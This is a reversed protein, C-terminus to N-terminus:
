EFDYVVAESREVKGYRVPLLIALQRQSARVWKNYIGDSGIRSFNLEHVGIAQEEFPYAQEELLIDYQELEDESLGKPRQSELLAAAFKNYIQGIEYTAETSAEAVGYSSAKEYAALIKEMARKKVILSKKLPITLQIRDFNNRLSESLKLSARSAVGRSYDSFDASNGGALSLADSYALEINKMLKLHASADSMELYMDAVRQRAQMAQDLPQPFQSQYRLYVSIAKEQQKLKEYLEASIWLAQKQLQSNSADRSLHDYEIAAKENYEAKLYAYALKRSVENRLGLQPFKERLYELKLIANVWDKRALLIAAVDYEATATIPADPFVDRIRIFHAIAGDEDGNKRAMEGQKYISAAMRQQLALYPEDKVSSLALAEQYAHEAREYKENEFFINAKITWASKRMDDSVFSTRQVLRTAMRDARQQQGTAFLDEVLSALVAGSQKHWPFKSTFNIASEIAQSRWAPYKKYALIAAYGAEGSIDRPPYDYAVKEYEKIAQAYQENEYLMDALQYRVEQSRIDDPFYNLYRQYWKTAEVYSGQSSNRQLAAHYFHAMDLVVRKLMLTVDTLEQQNHSLWFASEFGFRLVFEEKAARALDYFRLQEYTEFVRQQFYPAKAHQPMFTVFEHYTRAADAFRKKSVYRQAVAEFIRWSYRRQGIRELSIAVQELKESYSFILSIARLSDDIMKLERRSQHDDLAGQEFGKGAVFKRDLFKLFENLGAERQGSLFLSWGRKYFAYDHYAMSSSDLAVTQYANAAQTFRAQEFYIEGIRLLAESHFSSFPYDTVLRRLTEIAKDFEGSLDYARALQYVVGARDPYDPYKRLLEQYKIASRNFLKSGDVSLGGRSLQNQGQALLLDAVRRKAFLRVNEDGNFRAIAQYKKIVERFSTNAVPVYVSSFIEASRDASFDDRVSNPTQACATLLFVASFILAQNLRMM